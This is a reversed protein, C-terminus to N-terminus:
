GLEFTTIGYTRPLSIEPAPGLYMRATEFVPSLGAVRAFDVAAPNVQPVDLFIEAGAPIRNQVAIWLRAALAPSDAFLPGVKFGVRCPRVVAYGALRDQAVAGLAFSGPQDIWARLFAERVEPFFGRDYAALDAFPVTALEVVGGAGPAQHRVVGAYRVNAYAWEFGSKRYNAQQAVVGDLGVTQGALRVMAADWLAKGYGQGRFAPDTIYLGLFAYGQGYRVASIVAVTRGEVVGGLYGEPDAAWFPAADHLGPNWGERAAWALALDLGARNLTAIKLM